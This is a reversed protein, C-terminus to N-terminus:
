SRHLFSGSEQELPVRLATFSHINNGNINIANIANKITNGPVRAMLVVSVTDAVQVFTGNFFVALIGNIDEVGVGNIAVIVPVTRIRDPGPIDKPVTPKKFMPSVM